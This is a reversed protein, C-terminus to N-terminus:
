YGLYTHERKKRLKKRPNDEGVIFQAICHISTRKRLNIANFIMFQYGIIFKLWFQNEKM